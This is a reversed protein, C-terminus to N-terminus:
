ICIVDVHAKDCFCPCLITIFRLILIYLYVQVSSSVVYEDLASFVPFSSSSHYYLTLFNDKLSYVDKSDSVILRFMEALDYRKEAMLLVSYEVFCGIVISVKKSSNGYWM